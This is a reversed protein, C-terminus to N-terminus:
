QDENAHNDLFEKLAKEGAAIAEEKTAYKGRVTKRIWRAYFYARWVGEKKHFAAGVSTYEKFKERITKSYTLRLSDPDVNEWGPIDNLRAFEGFYLRAVHNYVIAAHEPTAYVGFRLQKKNIKIIVGWRNREKKIGKYGNQSDKRIGRNRASELISALRLNSRRNDLTNGNAHDCIEGVSLTRGIKRGLIIRHLNILERKQTDPNRSSAQAYYGHKRKAAHWNMEALDADVADIVTSQGKTLQITITGEM